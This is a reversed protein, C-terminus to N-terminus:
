QNGLAGPLDRLGKVAKAADIIARLGAPMNETGPPIQGPTNIAPKPGNTPAYDDDVRQSTFPRPQANVGGSMAQFLMKQAADPTMSLRDSMDKFLYNKSSTDRLLEEASVGAQRLRLFQDRKELMYSATLNAQGPIQQGMLGKPNVLDNMSKSITAFDKLDARVEPEADARKLLQYSRDNDAPSIKHDLEAQNLDHTTLRNPDGEPLGIRSQLDHLTNPDSVVQAEPQMIRSRTVEVASMGAHFDLQGKAIKDLIDTTMSSPPAQGNKLYGSLQGAVGELAQRQNNARDLAANQKALTAQEKMQVQAAKAMQLYKTGPVLGQMGPPLSDLIGQV